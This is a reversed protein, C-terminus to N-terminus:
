VIQTRVCVFTQLEWLIWLLNQSLEVGGCRTSLHHLPRCMKWQSIPCVFLATYHDTSPPLNHRRLNCVQSRLLHKFYLGEWLAWRRPTRWRPTGTTQRSWAGWCAITFSGTARSSASLQPWSSSWCSLWCMHPRTSPASPQSLFM